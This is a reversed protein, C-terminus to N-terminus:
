LPCVCVCVCKFEASKREFWSTVDGFVTAWCWVGDGWVTPPNTRYPRDTRRFGDMGTTNDWWANAGSRTRPFRTNQGLQVSGCPPFCIDDALSPNAQPVQFVDLCM